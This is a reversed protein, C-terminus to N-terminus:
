VLEIVNSYNKPYHYMEHVNKLDKKVVAAVERMSLGGSDKLFKIKKIMEFDPKRGRKKKEIEPMPQIIVNQGVFNLPNDLIVSAKLVNPRRNYRFFKRLMLMTSERRWRSNMPEVIAKYYSKIDELCIDEIRPKRVTKAFILLDEQDKGYTIILKELETKKRWFM